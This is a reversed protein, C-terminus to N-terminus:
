KLKELLGDIDKQSLKAHYAEISQEGYESNAAGLLGTNLYVETRENIFDRVM